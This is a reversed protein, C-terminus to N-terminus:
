FFNRDNPNQMSRKANQNDFFKSFALTIGKKFCVLKMCFNCTHCQTLMIHTGIGIDKRPLSRKYCLEHTNGTHEFRFFHLWKGLTKTVLWTLQWRYLLSIASVCIVIKLLYTFFGTRSAIISEIEFIEIKFLRTKRINMLQTLVKLVFDAAVRSTMSFQNNQGSKMKDLLQNAQSKKPFIYM